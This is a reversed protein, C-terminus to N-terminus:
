RFRLPLPQKATTRMSYPAVCYDHNDCKIACIGFFPIWLVLLKPIGPICYENRKCFLPIV